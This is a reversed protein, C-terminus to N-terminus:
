IIYNWCIYYVFYYPYLLSRKVKFFTAICATARVTWHLHVNDPNDWRSMRYHLRCQCRHLYHHHHHHQGPAEPPDQPDPVGPGPDVSAESAALEAMEEELCVTKAFRKLFRRLTMIWMTVTVNHREQGHHWSTVAEHDVQHSLIEVTILTKDREGSTRTQSLVNAENLTLCEFATRLQESLYTAVSLWQLKKQCLEFYLGCTVNLAIVSLLVRWLM